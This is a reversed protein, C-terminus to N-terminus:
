TMVRIYPRARNPMMYPVRQIPVPGRPMMRKRAKMWLYCSFLLSIIIVVILVGFALVLRTPSLCLTADDHPLLSQSVQSDQSQELVNIMDARTIVAQTELVASDEARIPQNEGDCSIIPCQRNCVLLNCKIRVSEMKRGGSMRPVFFDARSEKVGTIDNIISTFDSVLNLDNSCGFEDTLETVDGSASAMLCRTIMTEKRGSLKVKASLKVADGELLPELIQRGNNTIDLWGALPSLRDELVRREGGQRVRPSPAPLPAPGAEEEEEEKEEEKEKEQEELDELEQEEEQSLSTAVGYSQVATVPINRHQLGLQSTEVVRGVRSAMNCEVELQEDIVQQVHQDYQMYLNLRVREGEQRWGCQGVRVTMELQHRGRGETRCVSPGQEGRRLLRSPQVYLVGSFPDLTQTM